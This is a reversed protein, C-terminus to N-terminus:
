LSIENKEPLGYYVMYHAISETKVYQAFKVSSLPDSEIYVEKAERLLAKAETGNMMRSDGKQARISARKIKKGDIFHIDIYLFKWNLSVHIRKEIRDIEEEILQKTIGNQVRELDEKLLDIQHLMEEHETVTTTM